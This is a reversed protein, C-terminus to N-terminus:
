KKIFNINIIILEADTKHVVSIITIIYYFQREYNQSLKLNPVKNTHGFSV